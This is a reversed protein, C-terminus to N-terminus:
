PVYRFAFTRMAGNGVIDMSLSIIGNRYTGSAGGEESSIVIQNGQIEYGGDQSLTGTREAGQGAVRYDIAAHIEGNEQLILEGGTVTVIFPDITFGQPFTYPGRFIETPIQKKNVQMLAYTGAPDRNIPATSSDSGSCAVASALTTAALIGAIGSRISRRRRQTAASIIHTM